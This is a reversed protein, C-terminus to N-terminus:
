APNAPEHHAGETEVEAAEEAALLAKTYRAKLDEVAEAYDGSDHRVSVGTQRHWSGSVAEVEAIAIAEELHHAEAHLARIRALQDRVWPTDVYLKGHEDAPIDGLYADNHLSIGTITGSGNANVVPLALDVAQAKKKRNERTDIAKRLKELTESHIEVQTPKAECPQPHLDKATLRGDYTSITVDWGKYTELQVQRSTM